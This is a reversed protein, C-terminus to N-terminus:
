KSTGPDYLSYGDRNETFLDKLLLTRGTQIAGFGYRDRIGDVTRNLNELRRSETNLMALQGEPEGLGSVGIGLLRVARKEPTLAKKLLKEGTTYITENSDSAAELTHSRTITTFDSFRIKVTVTKARKTQHRLDAGVKEGLYRLTSKLFERDATDERFTTERSISKATGPPEVTRDDIGRAHNHLIEGSTGFYGTLVRVPVEALQGITSIGLAKLKQEAKKGVGPMRGVPLPALFAKETGPLVEVLGDPKSYDSAIKAVVKCPAIGVSACIGLKGNVRQKIAVAMQRLTGHLSEFGTVDLFAEDLGLPEIFPSFGSLIAMFQRSVDRYRRHSGQIFIAQPCLRSATKLPMASHLGFARAEYSAAAIVGREGAKGGVVVPKGKLDPNLAQEVSVFFADLDVHM